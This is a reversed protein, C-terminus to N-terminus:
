KLGVIEGTDLLDMSLAAPDSGLGPMTNIEGCLPVVFGAGASLRVARIPLVHGQPLGGLYPHATLSLHTKALCVPAGGLGAAEARVLDREAVASFEVSTAGYAKQAVKEIKLKLPDALDYFYQPLPQAPAEALQARVLDALALSGAAGQVYAGIRAAPCSLEGAIREIEALEEEHDGPFPNIAIVPQLGFRRATAVHHRLNGAGRQLAEMDPEAAKAPLVGGHVKLARATAVLVLAHPWIEASRCKIDLFKEAGLDFGFGAESVVVEASRLAFRTAIVSSCGHAVNAFPGGHVLAPTGERTQLLNPLMAERLVVAMAGVGGIEAATVPSGDAASGVLIKGLRQKLDGYDRSLCLIAMVESAATIDFRGERPVGDVHGGLGTIVRRLARDDLDIVRSLEVRRSDLRTPRDHRKLAFHLVNDCLSVLLNHATTIAHIDGTLGLNVRAFPELRAQGGGAGGGKSGLTPGLSPQRLACAAYVGRRRLGDCLGISVTTKGEGAPTPTLASVLVLKGPLPTGAPVFAVGPRLKAVGEGYPIYTGPTLSLENAVEDISSLSLQNM